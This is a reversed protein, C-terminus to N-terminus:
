QVGTLYGNNILMRIVGHECLEVFYSSATDAFLADLHVELLDKIASLNVNNKICNCSNIKLISGNLTLICLVAIIVENHCCTGLWCVKANLSSLFVAVLEPGIIISDLKAVPDM